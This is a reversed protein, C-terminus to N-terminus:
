EGREQGAPRNYINDKELDQGKCYKKIRFRLLDNEDELLKIRRTLLLILNKDGSNSLDKVAQGGDESEELAMYFM